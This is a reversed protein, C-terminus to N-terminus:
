PDSASAELTLATGRFTPSGRAVLSAIAPARNARTAVVVSAAAVLAGDSVTVVATGSAAYAAPARLTAEATGAGAELTWGEPATWAYTLDDGDPDAAT